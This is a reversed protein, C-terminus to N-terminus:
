APIINPKPQKKGLLGALITIFAALGAAAAAIYWILNPVKTVTTLIAPVVGQMAAVAVIATYLVALLAVLMVYGFVNSSAESEATYPLATSVAGAPQAIVEAAALGTGGSQVLIQDAEAAVDAAELAPGAAAAGGAAEAAPYIEDLIDAGLSTDDAQLSLDLLGSGSGFSDLSVDEEIKGLEDQTSPAPQTKGLTDDTVEYETDTAGLVTISESASADGTPQPASTELATTEDPTLEVEGTESPTLEIVSDEGAPSMKGLLSEVEQVKFLLNAGDRFERLKGEKILQKIEAETKGLKEIVESLKYFIDAM